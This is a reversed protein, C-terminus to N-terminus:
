DYAYHNIYQALKYTSLVIINSIINTNKLVFIEGSTM